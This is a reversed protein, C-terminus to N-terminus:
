IERRIAGRLPDELSLATENGVNQILTLSTRTTPPPGAPEVPRPAAPACLAKRDREHLPVPMGAEVDAFREQRHVHRDDLAEAEALGQLRDTHLFEAGVERRVVLAAVVDEAEVAAEIGGPRVRVLDLPFLEVEHQELVGRAAAGRVGPRSPRRAHLEVLSPAVTSIM